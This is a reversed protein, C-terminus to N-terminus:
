IEYNPLLNQGASAGPPVSLGQTARLQEGIQEQFIGNLVLQVGESSSLTELPTLPSSDARTLHQQNLVKFLNFEPDKSSLTRLTSKHEASLLLARQVSQLLEQETQSHASRKDYSQGITRALAEPGCFYGINMARLSPDSIQLLDALDTQFGNRESHPDLVSRVFADCDRRDPFDCFLHAFLRVFEVKKGVRSGIQEYSLGSCLYGKLTPQAQLNAPHGLALVQQCVPDSRRTEAPAELCGTLEGEPYGGPRQRCNSAQKLIPPPWTGVWPVDRHM